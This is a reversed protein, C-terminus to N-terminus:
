QSSNSSQSIGRWIADINFVALIEQESKLWYGRLFQELKTDKNSLSSTQISDPPCREINGVQNVVLGVIQSGTDNSTNTPLPFQVVAATYTSHVQQYLPTLGVLYGMDVLWLIESRWNYTGMMWPSMHPMPMIEETSVTIVETLQETPLLATIESAFHLQLFQETVEESIASNQSPTELEPAPMFDSVM